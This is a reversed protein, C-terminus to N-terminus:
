VDEDDGIVDNPQRVLLAAPLAAFVDALRLQADRAVVVEGTFADRYRADDAADPLALRTDGWAEGLPAAEEGRTLAITLRPVAVVVEQRELRRAFAVVHNRRSG